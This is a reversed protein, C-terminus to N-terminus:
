WKFLTEILQAKIIDGEVTLKGSTYAQLAPLTGNFLALFDTDAIQLSCVPNPHTGRDVQCTEKEIHCYWEGGQPGTISFQYVLEIGQAAAPDFASPLAEFVASVADFTPRADTTAPQVAALMTVLMDAADPHLTGADLAMLDQWRDTLLEPEAQAGQSPLTIGSGTIMAARNFYGMGANYIHGSVPCLDSCLYLVLPSVLEPRMKALLDAPLIDQTLRSAAIPAVANVTIDYKQGELKLTNMLGILAMKAAAYNAQGFNGYLGAASTTMVIRGYGHQKMLEFVPRTVYYAGNLHVDLVARWNDTEMKVLSKDRLIGANNILIDVRGFRQLAQAVLSAGGKETAVNDYNAVAQGGRAKIEAVVRDAATHSGDGIGDRAGGFDNVVVRAGKQALELAYVRGLGGGAGTVIAVRDDFRITAKPIDGFEFVGRDIIVEDTAAELVRWLAKGPATQWILIKIPVGPYLPRAFRCALRRVKEPAGPALSQILARCAFGHTCLGHMIPKEFGASKAFDADVHLQFIDGSLRFLLPQDSEPTETITYDAAREPFVIEQQPAKPGGFGGDMRSFVTATGSFLKQGNAHHTETEVMILAGKDAGKDYYQSIKGVTSLTGATPIPNHFVLEQEGHLIGALNVNSMVAVEPMIDYLTAIAFSPLVKLHKEYCYEIEQFGAGVGLAYLVVDKWTYEKTIPGIKKGIAERNLAM